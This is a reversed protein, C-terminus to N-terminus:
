IIRRNSAILINPTQSSDEIDKQSMDVLRKKLGDSINLNADTSNGKVIIITKKKRRQRKEKPLKQM